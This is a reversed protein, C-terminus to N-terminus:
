GAADPRCPSWTPWPAPRCVPEAALNLMHATAALNYTALTNNLLKVTAPQGYSDLHFVHGSEDALLRAEADTPEPGALFITLSRSRAGQPGGSVPSEFVRWNEPASSTINRADTPSLTTNILVRLPLDTAAQLSRMVAHVQNALRVAVHVSEVTPWDITALDSGFLASGTDEAWRAVRQTDLDYGYM